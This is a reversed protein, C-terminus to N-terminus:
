DPQGDYGSLLLGGDCMLTSGTVYSAASSLLFIAANAIEERRGYRRTPIRATIREAQQDSILRGVGETGAIPGPCLSNVRVGEPGWELALTRVLSEIGAKAASAHSQGWVPRMAQGSSIALLSAGPRRLRSYAARFTHFTGSLDIDVVAKFGNASLESAPAIFNGAAGAIVFDFPGLSDEALAMAADLAPFNRVDASLALAQPGLTSLEAAARQAKDMDRGLVAVRAGCAVLGRAIGLNIGSTGGAIFATKGTFIGAGFVGADYSANAPANMQRDM